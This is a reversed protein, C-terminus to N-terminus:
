WLPRPEKRALSGARGAPHSSLFCVSQGHSNPKVSSDDGWGPCHPVSAPVGDAIVGTPSVQSVQCCRKHNGLPPRSHPLRVHVGWPEHVQHGAVMGAMKWCPAKLPSACCFGGETPLPCAWGQSVLWHSLRHRSPRFATPRSRPKSMKAM